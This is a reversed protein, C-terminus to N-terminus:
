RNIQANMFSLEDAIEDALRAIRMPRDVSRPGDVPDGFGGFGPGAFRSAVLTLNIFFRMTSFTRFHIFAESLLGNEPNM